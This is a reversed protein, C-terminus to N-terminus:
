WDFNLGFYWLMQSDGVVSHGASFFVGFLDSFRYSGGFNLAGYGRDHDTDQGQAYIEGGLTLRSSLDRQL